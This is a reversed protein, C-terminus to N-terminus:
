DGLATGERRPDVASNWRGDAQRFFGHLGSNQDRIKIEHGLAKLPEALQEAATGEELETVGNRNVVHPTNFAQQLSIDSSLKLYLNQAVYSIIRSGGPSGLAAVLRNNEDFVMVPSMSSRPRKGAQVRNAVPKGDQEAVFSFDTLQNNLLFGGTMLTSGFAM